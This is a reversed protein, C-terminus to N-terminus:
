GNRTIKEGFVHIDKVFSLNLPDKKPASCTQIKIPECTIVCSAFICIIKKVFNCPFNSINANQTMVKSGIFTLVQEAGWFSWRFRMKTFLQHFFPWFNDYFLGNLVKSLNVLFSTSLTRETFFSLLHLLKNSSRMTDKKVSRVNSCSLSRRM